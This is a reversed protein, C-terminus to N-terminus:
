DLSPTLVAVGQKYVGVAEGLRTLGEDTNPYYSCTVHAVGLERYTHLQTAVEEATGTIYDGPGKMWSPLEGLDPYAITLGGTIQVTSPDRGELACAEQLGSIREAYQDTPGLWDTNWGDAYRATLRMMRPKFAAVLISPGHTSPGKPRLEGNNASYYTGRFDFTPNRLLGIIIQIAEEFRSALHDSPMGFADFEPTHWGAGLGLILRGGSIEDVTTAMKALLAPNRFATCIVQTGLEVRTTAASLASLVSWCEWFGVDPVGPFRHLLHDYIWISDMGIAEARVATDRIEQFSLARGRKEDEALPIVIGVKM